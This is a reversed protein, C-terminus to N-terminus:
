HHLKHKEYLYPIKHFMYHIIMFFIDDIVLIIGFARIIDWPTPFGQFDLKTGAISLGIIM